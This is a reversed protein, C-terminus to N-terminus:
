DIFLIFVFQERKEKWEYLLTVNWAVSLRELLYYTSKIALLSVGVLGIKWKM